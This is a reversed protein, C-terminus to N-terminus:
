SVVECVLDTFAHGAEDPMVARIEYVTAGVTARMGNTITTVYSRLRISAKVVSSEAGARITAAGSLQQVNAWWSGLTPWTGTPQGDEDQAAPPV